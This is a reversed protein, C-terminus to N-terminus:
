EFKSIEQFLKKQLDDNKIGLNKIKEDKEENQSMLM